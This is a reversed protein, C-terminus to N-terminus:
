QYLAMQFLFLFFSFDSSFLMPFKPIGDEGAGELIHSLYNAGVAVINRPEIPALLELDDTTGVETGVTYSDFIDGEIAYVSGSEKLSGYKPGAPTAYRVFKM